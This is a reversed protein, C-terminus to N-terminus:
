YRHVPVVPGAIGISLIYQFKYRSDHPETFQITKKPAHVFGAFMLLGYLAFLLLYTQSKVCYDCYYIIITKLKENPRSHAEPSNFPTLHKM